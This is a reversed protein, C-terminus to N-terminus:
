GGFIKDNSNIEIETIGKNKVKMKELKGGFSEVLLECGYCIGIIPKESTKIVEIEKKLKDENGQIELHSGGSLIVLDFDNQNLNNLDDYRHVIEDGPILKRLSELLTTGNDILLIKM